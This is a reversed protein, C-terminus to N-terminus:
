SLTQCCQMLDSSREVGGVTHPLERVMLRDLDHAVVVERGVVHDECSTLESADDVPVGSRGSRADPIQRVKRVPRNTPRGDSGQRRLGGLMRIPARAEVATCSRRGHGRALTGYDHRSDPPEALQRAERGFASVCSVFPEPRVGGGVELVSVPDGRM